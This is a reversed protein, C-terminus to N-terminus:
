EIIQVQKNKVVKRLPEQFPENCNVKNKTNIKVLSCMPSLEEIEKTIKEEDVSDSNAQDYKSWVFVVPKDEIVRRLNGNAL